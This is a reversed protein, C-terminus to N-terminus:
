LVGIKKQNFESKIQANENNVSSNDSEISFDYNQSLIKDNIYIILKKNQCLIRQNQNCPGVCFDTLTM